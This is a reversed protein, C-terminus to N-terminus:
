KLLDLPLPSDANRFEPEPNEEEDSEIEIVEGVRKALEQKVAAVILSTQAHPHALQQTHLPRRPM